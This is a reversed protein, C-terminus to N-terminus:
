KSAGSTNPPSANPRRPSTPSPRTLREHSYGLPHKEIWDAKDKLSVRRGSFESHEQATGYLMLVNPTQFLAPLEAMSIPRWVGNVLKIAWQGYPGELDGWDQGPLKRSGYYDGYLVAYWVADYQGLFMPHFGKFLQTVVGSPSGADFTLTTDRPIISGSYPMFGLSLREYSHKLHVWTTRGDHLQVEEDWEFDFNRGYICGCLFLATLATGLLTRRNMTSPWWTPAPLRVNWHRDFSLRRVHAGPESVSM